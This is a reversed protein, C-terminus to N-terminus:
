WHFLANGALRGEVASTRQAERAPPTAAPTVDSGRRVWRRGGSGSGGVRANGGSRPRIAAPRPRDLCPTCRGPGTSWAPWRDRSATAPPPRTTARSTARWRGAAGGCGAPGGNKGAGCRSDAWPDTVAAIRDALRRAASPGRVNTPRKILARRKANASHRAPSCRSARRRRDCRGLCGSRVPRLLQAPGPPGRRRM